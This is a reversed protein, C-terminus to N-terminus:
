PEDTSPPDEPARAYSLGQALNIGTAILLPVWPVPWRALVGFLAYGLAILAIVALSTQNRVAAQARFAAYFQELARIMGLERLVLTAILFAEIWRASGPAFVRIPYVLLALGGYGVLVKAKEVIADKVAAERRYAANEKRILQAGPVGESQGAAV